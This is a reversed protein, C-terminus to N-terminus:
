LSNKRTKEAQAFRGLVSQPRFIPDEAHFEGHMGNFPRVIM